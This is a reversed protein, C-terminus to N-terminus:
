PLKILDDCFLRAMVELDGWRPSVTCLVGVFDVEPSVPLIPLLWFPVSRLRGTGVGLVMKFVM